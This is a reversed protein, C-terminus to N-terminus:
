KRSERSRQANKRLQTETKDFADQLAELLDPKKGTSEATNNRGGQVAVMVTFFPGDKDLVAHVFEIEPFKEALREAKERAQTKVADNIELHRITIEVAM